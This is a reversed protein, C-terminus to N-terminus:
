DKRKRNSGTGENDASNTTKIVGRKTSNKNNNNSSSNTTKIVDKTVNNFIFSLNRVIVYRIYAILSIITLLLLIGCVVAETIMGRQMGQLQDFAISNSSIEFLSRSIDGYSGIITFLRYGEYVGSLLLVIATLPFFM